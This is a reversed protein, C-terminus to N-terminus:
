CPFSEGWGELRTVRVIIGNDLYVEEHMYNRGCDIYYYFIEYEGETIKRLMVQKEFVFPEPPKPGPMGYTGNSFNLLRGDPLRRENAEKLLTYLQEAEKVTMNSHRFRKKM